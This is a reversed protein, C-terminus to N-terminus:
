LHLVNQQLGVNANLGAEAKASVVLKFSSKIKWVMSSNMKQTVAYVGSSLCNCIAVWAFCYRRGGRRPNSKVEEAKRITAKRVPM